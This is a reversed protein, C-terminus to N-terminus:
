NKFSRRLRVDRGCHSTVEPRIRRSLEVPAHIDRDRNSSRSRANRDFGSMHELAAARLNILATEALTRRCSEYKFGKRGLQFLRRSGTRLLQREAHVSGLM